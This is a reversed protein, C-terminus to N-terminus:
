FSIRHNEPNLLVGYLSGVHLDVEFSAAIEVGTSEGGISFYGGEGPVFSFLFHRKGDTVSIRNPLTGDCTRKGPVTVPNQDDSVGVPIHAKGYIFKQFHLAANGENGAAGNYLAQRKRDHTHNRFISFTCQFCFQPFHFFLEM